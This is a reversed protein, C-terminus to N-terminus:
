VCFSLFYWDENLLFLYALNIANTLFAAITMPIVISILQINKRDRPLFQLAM